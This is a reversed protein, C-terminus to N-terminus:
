WKDRTIKTRVENPKFLLRLVYHSPYQPMGAGVSTAMFTGM